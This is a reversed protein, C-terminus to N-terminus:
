AGRTPRHPGCAECAGPLEAFGRWRRRSEGNGDNGIETGSVHEGAALARREHGKEIVNEEGVVTAAANQLVDAADAIEGGNGGAGRGGATMAKSVPGPLMTM